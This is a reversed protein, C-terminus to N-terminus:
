DSVLVEAFLDRCEAREKAFHITAAVFGPVSGCDFRLGHYKYAHIQRIDLVEAIADTLQLEGNFGFDINELAAFIEHPLIYRGLIAQHSPAQAPQPKEVVSKIRTSNEALGIVGYKHLEHLPKEQVAIQLNGSNVYQAVMEQMCPNCGALVDDALLVAFDRAGVLNKACLVADGLGNPQEQQVFSIKVDLPIVTQIKQLSRLDGKNKLMSELEYSPTFYDELAQKTANTVFILEKIGAAVAEEVAYQILPKDIIALMEKPSSKTIPLFRTGLGAAPFVAVEISKNM